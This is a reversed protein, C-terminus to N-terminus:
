GGMTISGSSAIISVMIFFMVSVSILCSAILVVSSGASNICDVLRKDCIPEIVAATFKFTLAIIFLKAIPFVVIVIMIVLGLSSVAGKLLLSYGAVSSIADSLCKGVVPVFNDVAFKATKATVVDMTKSTIGRITIIGIFITMIIGQAWLASSNLLKTLKDIKYEESLSNVFQMVFSLFIVPIIIKVYINSFLTIAGIIIPDLTAVQTVGGVSALLWMLTPILANMFSTMEGITKAAEDACIYFSRVLLILVMAYCAFYAINSINTNSLASQLNNLLACIVAIVILMGMLKLAATVEKLSYSIFANLLKNISLKGDGTSIYNEIYSKADMNNLMEDSNKMNTIYDYLQTVESSDKAEISTNTNTEAAAIVSPSMYFILFACFLFVYIKKM